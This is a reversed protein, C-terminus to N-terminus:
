LGSTLPSLRFGSAHVFLLGKHGSADIAAVNASGLAILASGCPPRRSKSEADPCEFSIRGAFFFVADARSALNQFWATDVRANVLCIGNNHAIFKSLWDYINSYPPNMWVRGTWRSQLGDKPKRINRKAHHMPGACPDLDFPGLPSTVWAPTYFEDSYECPIRGALYTHRSAMAVARGSEQTFGRRKSPTVATTGTM